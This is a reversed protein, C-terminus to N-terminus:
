KTYMEEIKGMAKSLNAKALNYNFLARIENDQARSLTDQANVVEVNTTVGETYRDRTLRLTTEASSVGQRAALVQDVAANLSIAASRVDMEIESELEKTSEKQEQLQAKAQEIQGKINGGTFLPVTVTAGVFFANDNDSPDSGTRSLQGTVGVVPLYQAQNKEITLQLTKEQTRASQLDPRLAFAEQISSDLSVSVARDFQPSDTLKIPRGQEVNILQALALKATEFDTSNESLTQIENQYELDARATELKSGTGADEFQKAQVWLAKAAEVRVRGAMMSSEARLAQLYYSVTKLAIAERAASYDTKASKEQEGAAAIAKMLNLNFINQTVQVYAEFSNFTASSPSGPIDFGESSYNLKERAQSAVVSLQPLYGSRTQESVSQQENIKLKSVQLTHNQELARQVAEKLSLQIPPSKEEAHLSVTLSFLCINIVVILTKM